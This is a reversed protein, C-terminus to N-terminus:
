KLHCFARKGKKIFQVLIIHCVGYDSTHTCNYSYSTSIFSNLSAGSLDLTCALPFTPVGKITDVNLNRPQDQFLFPLVSM